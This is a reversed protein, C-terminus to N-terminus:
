SPSQSGETVELGPSLVLVQDTDTINMGEHHLLALRPPECLAQAAVGQRERVPTM